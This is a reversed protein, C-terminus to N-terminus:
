ADGELIQSLGLQNKYNIENAPYNKGKPSLFLTGSILLLISLGVVGWENRTLGWISLNKGNGSSLIFRFFLGTAMLFDLGALAITVV